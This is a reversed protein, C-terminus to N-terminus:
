FTSVKQSPWEREGFSDWLPAMIRIEQRIAFVFAKESFEDAEVM